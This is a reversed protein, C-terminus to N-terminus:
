CNIGEVNKEDRLHLWANAAYKMGKEVVLAEHDTRDDIELIDTDLVSPWILASGRKPTVDIYPAGEALENFRTAGGEEVDNLYLLVTLIRPGSPGHKHGPIYDHHRKYYEGPHYQLLQLEESYDVPVGTLTAIKQTAIRAIPDTDCEHCFTNKSTRRKSVRKESPSGDRKTAQETSQKFGQEKGLEILRDCEEDSLLDELVVVWPGDIIDNSSLAQTKEEDDDPFPRSYIKTTYNLDEMGDNIQDQTLEREGVLREFMAHLGNEGGKRSFAEVADEPIPCRISFDLMECSHCTPACNMVMWEYHRSDEHCGGKAAFHSCRSDLNRCDRRVSKFKKNTTDMVAYSMYLSTQIMAHLTEKILNENLIVQPEGIYFEDDRYEYSLNKNFFLL